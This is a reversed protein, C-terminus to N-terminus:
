DILLNPRSSSDRWRRRGVSASCMCIVQGRQNKNSEMDIFDIVVLGALDRLRLQRAIEDAAELNTKFATEEISGGGTSKASNIDISTLAETHDIVISGGSPLRLVSEHAAEFIKNAESMIARTSTSRAGPANTVKIKILSSEMVPSLATAAASPLTM